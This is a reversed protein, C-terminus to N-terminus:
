PLLALWAGAREQRAIYRAAAHGAMVSDLAAEAHARTNNQESLHGAVLWQLQEPGLAALLQSAQGNALHGFRGAVRRKVSAPYRSGALMQPEHNFELLLGDCGRFREVVHASPHGLDTLVGLSLGHASFRFQVPERADHPVTVPLVDLDGIPFPRDGAVVGDGSGPQMKMGRWTGATARVSVHNRRRLAAVGSAHDSHEHTILVADLEDTCAGIEALRHDLEKLTFGCDILVCTHGTRVLTGNGRSGSGLCCLELM